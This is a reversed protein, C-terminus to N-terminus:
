SSGCVGGFHRTKFIGLLFDGLLESDTEPFEKSSRAATNPASSLGATIKSYIKGCAEPTSSAKSQEPNVM